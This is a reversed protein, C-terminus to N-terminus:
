GMRRPQAHPSTLKANEQENATLAELVEVVHVFRGLWLATYRKQLITEIQPGHLTVAHGERFFQVNFTNEIIWIL